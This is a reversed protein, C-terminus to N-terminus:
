VYLNIINLIVKKIKQRTKSNKFTRYGIPLSSIQINSHRNIFKLYNPLKDYKFPHKSKILNIGSLPDPIIKGFRILYSICVFFSVLKAFYFTLNSEVLAHKFSNVMQRRSEFRSGIIADLQQNQMLEIWVDIEFLPIKGEADLYLYFSPKSPCQGSPYFQVMRSPDKNLVEMEAEYAQQLFSGTTECFDVEVLIKLNEVDLYKVIGNWLKRGIHKGDEGALSMSVINHDLKKPLIHSHEDVFIKHFFGQDKNSFEKLVLQLFAEFDINHIDNDFRNNVLLVKQAKAEIIEKKCIRYSPLLSSFQTGSGFIILDAEKIATLAEPSIQPVLSLQEIEEIGYEKEADLSLMVHLPLLFFEKLAESGQFNVIDAENRLFKGKADFAVLKSDDAHSVNIIKATLKFQRTLKDLALNFDQTEYYIGGILINGLSFGNIVEIDRNFNLLERFGFQFYTSLFEQNEPHVPFKQALYELFENSNQIFLIAEEENLRHELLYKINKNEETYDDLIYTLNKRYDSPGLMGKIASRMVGTSLGDDYGNILLSLNVYSVDKLHKILNANGNGGTFLVVNM